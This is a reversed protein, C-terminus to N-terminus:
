VLADLGRLATSSHTTSLTVHSTNSFPEGNPQTWCTSKLAVMGYCEELVM